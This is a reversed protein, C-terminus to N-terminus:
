VVVGGMLMRDHPPPERAMGAPREVEGRGRGGPEVGDLAEEGDQGLPTELAADESGDCVKFGCSFTQCNMRSLQSEFRMKLDWSWITSWQQSAQFLSM